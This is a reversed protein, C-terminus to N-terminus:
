SFVYWTVIFLYAMYLIIASYFKGLPTFYFKGPNRLILLFSEDLEIDQTRFQRNPNVFDYESWMQSCVRGVRNFVFFEELELEMAM